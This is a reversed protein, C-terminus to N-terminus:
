ESLDPLRRDMELVWNWPLIRTDKQIKPSVRCKGKKKCVTIPPHEYRLLSYQYVQYVGQVALCPARKVTLIYNFYFQSM